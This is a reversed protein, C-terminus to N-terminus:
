YKYKQVLLCTFGTAFLLSGDRSLALRAPERCKFLRQQDNTELSM